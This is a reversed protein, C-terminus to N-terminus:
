RRTLMRHMIEAQHIADDLATHNHKFKLPIDAYAPDKFISQRSTQGWRGGKLGMWFSKVDLTNYWGYPIPIHCYHFYWNLWGCDFTGMSCMVPRALLPPAVSDVWNRFSHMMDVPAMGDRKCEEIDLGNVKMAEDEVLATSLPQILNSYWSRIGPSTHKGVVVAGFSLMSYLGPVPGSTEADVMVFVEPKGEDRHEAM